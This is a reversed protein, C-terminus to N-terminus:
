DSDSDSDSDKMKKWKRAMDLIKLTSTKSEEDPFVYDYYEEWGANTGDEALVQRKKRIRKPLKATVEKVLDASGFNKEFDRWGELLM